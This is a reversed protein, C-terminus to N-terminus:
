NKRENLLLFILRKVPKLIINVFESYLENINNFKILSKFKSLNLMKMNYFIHKIEIKKLLNTIKKLINCSSFLGNNSFVYFIGMLPNIRLGIDFHDLMFKLVTKKVSKFTVEKNEEKIEKKVSSIDDAKESKKPSNLIAFFDNINFLCLLKELKFTKKKM